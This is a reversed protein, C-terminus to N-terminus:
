FEFSSVKNIIIYENDYFDIKIGGDKKVAIVHDSCEKVVEYVKGIHKRYKNYTGDDDGDNDFTSKDIDTIKIFDGVKAKM